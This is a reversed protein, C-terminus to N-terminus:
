RCDDTQVELWKEIKDLKELAKIAMALAEKANGFTNNFYLELEKIAEEKTM